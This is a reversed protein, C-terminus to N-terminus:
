DLNDHVSSIAIFELRVLVNRGVIGASAVLGGSMVRHGGHIQSNYCKKLDGLIKVATEILQDSNPVGVDYWEWNLVKYLYATREFDFGEIVKDIQKKTIKM